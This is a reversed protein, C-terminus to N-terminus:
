TVSQKGSPRVASSHTNLLWKPALRDMGEGLQLPLGRGDVLKVLERMDSETGGLLLALRSGDSWVLHARYMPGYRGQAASIELHDLGALSVERKVVFPWLGVSKEARHQSFLLRVKITVLALAIGGIVLPLGWLMREFPTRAGFPFGAPLKSAYLLLVVIASLVAIVIGAGNYGRFANITIPKDVDSRM